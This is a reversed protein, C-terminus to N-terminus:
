CVESYGYYAQTRKDLIRLQKNAKKMLYEAGETAVDYAEPAKSLMIGLERRAEYAGFFDLKVFFPCLLTIAAGSAIPPIKMVFYMISWVIGACCLAAVISLGTRVYIRDIQEKLGLRLIKIALKAEM